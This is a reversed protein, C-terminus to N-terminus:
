LEKNLKTTLEKHLIFYIESLVVHADEISGNYLSRELSPNSLLRLHENLSLEAILDHLAQAETEDLVFQRTTEVKM